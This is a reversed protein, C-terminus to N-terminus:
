WLQRSFHTASCKPQRALERHPWVLNEGPLRRVCACLVSCALTAFRAAVASAAGSASTHFVRSGAEATIENRTLYSWAQFPPLASVPPLVRAAM